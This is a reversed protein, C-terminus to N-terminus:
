KNDKNSKNSLEILWRRYLGYERGYAEVEWPSDWYPDEKKKPSWYGGMWRTTPVNKGGRMLKLREAGLEGCVYQKLHVIEHALASIVPIESTDNDKLCIKFIRLEQNIEEIWGLYDMDNCRLIQLEITDLLKNSMLHNSFFLAAKKIENSQKRGFGRVTIYM